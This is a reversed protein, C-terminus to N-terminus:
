SANFSRYFNNDIFRTSILSSYHIYQREDCAESESQACWGISLKGFGHWQFPM